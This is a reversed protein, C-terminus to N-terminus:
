LDKGMHNSSVNPVNMPNEKSNGELRNEGYGTSGCSSEGVDVIQINIFPPTGSDMSLDTSLDITDDMVREAVNPADVANCSLQNQNACSEMEACTWDNNFFGTEDM